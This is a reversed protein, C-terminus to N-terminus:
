GSSVLPLALSKRSRLSHTLRTRFMDGEHNVFVQTKYELRRFAASHLIRDRDRQFESRYRPPPEDIRRGRSLHEKAAYAKVTDVDHWRAEPPKAATSLTTLAQMDLDATVLGKGIAELLILRLKGAQM